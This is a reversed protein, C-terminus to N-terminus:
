VKQQLIDCFILLYELLLLWIRRIFSQKYLNCLSQTDRTKCYKNVSHLMGHFRYM